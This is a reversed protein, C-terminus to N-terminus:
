CLEIGIKDLQVALQDVEEQRKVRGELNQSIFPMEQYTQSLSKLQSPSYVNEVSTLQTRITM